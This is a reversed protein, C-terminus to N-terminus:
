ITFYSVRIQFLKFTTHLTVQLTCYYIHWSFCEKICESSFELLFKYDVDLYWLTLLTFTFKVITSLRSMCLIDQAYSNRQTCVLIFFTLIWKSSGAKGCFLNIWLWELPSSTSFNLIAGEYYINFITSLKRNVLVEWIWHCCNSYQRMRKGIKHLIQLHYIWFKLCMDLVNTLGYYFPRLNLTVLPLLSLFHSTTKSIM